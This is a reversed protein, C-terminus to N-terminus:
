NLSGKAFYYLVGKSGFRLFSSPIQLCAPSVPIDVLQKGPPLSNDGLHMKVTARLCPLPAAPLHDEDDDDDKDDDDDDDDEQVESRSM